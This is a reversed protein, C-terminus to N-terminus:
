KLMNNSVNEKRYQVPSHGTVKRFMRTYHEANNYGVMAAIEYVKFNTTKLLEKSKQIRIDTLYTSFTEGTEKTFRNTFYKENLDVCQAVKSLSLESDEFNDNIYRKARTIIDMNSVDLKSASYDIIWTFYNTIWIRLSRTNELRQLKQVYDYQESFINGFGSKDQNFRNAIALIAAYTQLKADELSIKVFTTFMIEKEKNVNKEDAVYLSDALVKYASSWEFIKENMENNQSLDIIAHKGRLNQLCKKRRIEYISENFESCGHKEEGLCAMFDIKLERSVSKQLEQIMAIVKETYDEEMIRYFIWIASMSEKYVICRSAFRPNREFNKLLKQLMQASIESDGGQVLDFEILVYPDIFFEKSQQNELEPDINGKIIAELYEEPQMEISKVKEEYEDILAKLRRTMANFQHIMSRVEYQGVPSIHVQLNGEEVQHLGESIAEVPKVIGRLFYRSFYGAMLLIVIAGLLVCIATKWYDATLESTKIYSEIIWEIDGAKVSSSVCTYYKSSYNTEEGTSYIEEQFENRIKTIGLKNKGSLYEKNYENIMGGVDTSQFFMVMDLKQTRDTQINPALAFVLVLTDKKSGMYLDNTASTDYSGIYISNKNELAKQYWSTNQIEEMTRTIYNKFYTNRGNKMFFSVSIIDEIPELVLNISDNLKQENDYRLTNDKEDTGAAFRLVENYNTYIMHSLRMSMVDIDSQLNTIIADQGREINEIAQNKFQKNLVLLAVILVTLVPVVIFFSFVIYYLTKLPLHKSKKQLTM